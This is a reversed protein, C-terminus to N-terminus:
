QCSLCEDYQPAELIIERDVHHGIKARSSATSRCYYLSKLGKKWALVHLHFLDVKTVNPRIFLNLSQGQDIFDGRNAAHEILWKQDIEYATKFVDKHWDSMFDLEQVSGENKAIAAWADTIFDHWYCMEDADERMEEKPYAEDAYEELVKLLRPNKIIHTGINNKHPYLNAMMPEIGATAEGCIISISSTPAVAMKCVNRYMDGTTGKYIPAFGKEYGLVLSAKKTAEDLFSFVRMNVSAAISSEFPINNSQLYGHYGMVGLGISREYEASRVADEYGEVGKNQNIFNQLVNDLFRVIDSIFLYNGDWEDFKEINVSSLCCVATRTASTSLLIETCLNSMSVTMGKRKYIEPMKDTVNDSFFMYPEGTEMRSTLIRTFLDFANVTQVPSGDKPSRLIWDEDAVVADMFANTLKVGHHINLSRRNQDGGTPKRLDIFEEIEPHSIDLYVAQSARRLGGQSVAITSSDSVKIFPIIGSSEGNKGAKAGIERVASWDTGVGGGGAGLWFNENYKRFIGKKSDPIENKFCSIVSGREPVGSNSLVPTAAMFWLDKMYQQIREGHAQNDQNALAVRKFLDEPTKEDGYYYREALMQLGFPTLNSM